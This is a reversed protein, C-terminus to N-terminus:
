APDPGAFADHEGADGGGLQPAVLMESWLFSTLPPCRGGKCGGPGGIHALMATAVAQPDISYTGVDLREKIVSVMDKEEDAGGTRGM